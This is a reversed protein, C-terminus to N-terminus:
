RAAAALVPEFVEPGAALREHDTTVVVEGDEDLILKPHLLTIGVLRGDPGYRTHHVEPSEDYDVADRPEGIHLYLVDVDRDYRVRDFTFDGITISM